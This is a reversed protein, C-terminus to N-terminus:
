SVSTRRWCGSMGGLVRDAAPMKGPARLRAGRTLPHHLPVERDGVRGKPPLVLRSGLRVRLEGGIGLDVIAPTTKTTPFARPRVARSPM